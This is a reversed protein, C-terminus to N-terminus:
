GYLSAELAGACQVRQCLPVNGAAGVRSLRSEGGRRMELVMAGAEFCFGDTDEADILVIGCLRCHQVSGVRGSAVHVVTRRTLPM